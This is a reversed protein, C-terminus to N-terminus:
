WYFGININFRGHWEDDGGRAMSGGAFFPMDRALIYDFYTFIPGSGVACGITNIQSDSAGALDKFLRSYDNYCILQEVPQWPPDFNYALNATAIDGRGTIDHSGGFAGLRVIDNDIGEPNAPDYDYRVGQLQLNWRGCRSDLHLAAAWHDGSDGSASNHVDARQFSGGTELECGTGLGFTYALRANVRNVEENRQEGVRVVDFSYRDLNTADNLEENKYFGLHTTWPGDERQYKIGMDYNDSLGAYYPVGFWSNHSAYPLIGFPVKHIGLQLQSEDEFEYGVWGHHITDLFAYHRYEASILINSLQGNVNLRFLDLGSEGRKDISDRSFDRRVVNFRLAGGIHLDPVPIEDEPGIEAHEIGPVAQGLGELEWAEPQAADPAVGTEEPQGAPPDAPSSGPEGSHDALRAELQELRERLAEVERQLEEVRSDEAASATTMATCLFLLCAFLWLAPSSNDSGTGTMTRPLMM